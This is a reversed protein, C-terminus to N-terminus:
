GPAKRRTKRAAQADPLPPLFRRRLALTRQWTEEGIVTGSWCVCGVQHLCIGTLDQEDEYHPDPCRMVGRYEGRMVASCVVGTDECKPCKM